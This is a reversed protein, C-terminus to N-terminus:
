GAQLAQQRLRQRREYENLGGWIGHPERIRLAYELCPERVPCETCIAKAKVERAAKEERREFYAPAFDAPGLEPHGRSLLTAHLLLAGLGVGFSLSLPQAVASLTTARSMRPADIEAYAMANLSTFQLSRFFGGVLLIGIMLAHPTSPRFFGCAAMSIACIVTNGLLVTRFGFRRLIAPATIKVALTSTPEFTM